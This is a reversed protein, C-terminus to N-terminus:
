ERVTVNKGAKLGFAALVAILAIFIIIPLSWSKTVDFIAGMLSPGVAALLYGASQSMGSLESAKVANPSRLSIFAISLSISGGMGLSILLVSIVMIVPNKAMLFLIMGAIYTVCTTIVLNRQNDFKDCLIPVILTAPIAVLQYMLAMNSAFIKLMGKSVVITPLWAVMSYFLLSQIGMFMTVVWATKSKWISTKSKETKEQNKVMIVNHKSKKMHTVWIFITLVAMLVWVSLSNKWGLNLNNALPMSAGAGVAAFICMSSTYVSTMKGVDEGFKLKILSPILVNGIAIGIGILTTGVFVGVLNTYSRILEGILISFLGMLMVKGNSFKKILKAVFPSVLAFALLPLTTIFGAMFSSMPYDQTILKVVSGVATIPARLNFSIFIIGLMILANEKKRM